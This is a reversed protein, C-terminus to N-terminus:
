QLYDRLKGEAKANKLGLEQAIKISKDKSFNQNKYLHAGLWAAARSGSSCHILVRGEKEHQRVKSTVEAVYQDTLKKSMDFPINYYHIGQKKLLAEEAKAMKDDEKPSRLNIVTKVNAKNLSTLDKKTPQGSFYLSGLRGGVLDITIPVNMEKADSSDKKDSHGCSVLSFLLIFIITSKM